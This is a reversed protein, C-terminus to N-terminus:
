VKMEPMQVLYECAKRELDARENAEVAKLNPYGGMIKLDVKVLPIKEDEGWNM